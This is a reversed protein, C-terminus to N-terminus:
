HGARPLKHRLWGLLDAERFPRPLRDTAPDRRRWWPGASAGLLLVPVHSGEDRRRLARLWPGPALDGDVVVASPRSAEFAAAAGELDTVLQPHVGQRLLALRVLRGESARRCAVLVTPPTAADPATALVGAAVLEALLALARGEPQDAEAALARASRRGDVLGLLEWAEPSLAHRTPDGSRRLVTDPDLRGSGGRAEDVQMLIRVPDFGAEGPSGPPGDGERFAFRGDRWRGLESLVEILHREVALDLEARDIWGRELAAAGLPPRGGSATQRALLEHVEDLALLDMRALVEGLHVGGDISAAWLKGDAVWVRARQDGREVNLVGSRRGSLLVQLVDTIAVERLSGEIM